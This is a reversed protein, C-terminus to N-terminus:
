KFFIASKKHGQRLSGNGSALKDNLLRLVGNEVVLKRNSEELADIRNLLRGEREAKYITSKSKVNAIIRIDEVLKGSPAVNAISRKQDDSLKERALVVMGKFNCCKLFVPCIDAM